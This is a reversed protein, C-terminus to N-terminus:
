DTSTRIRMESETFGTASGIGSIRLDPEYSGHGRHPNRVVCALDILGSPTLAEEFLVGQSLVRRAGTEFEAFKGLAAM